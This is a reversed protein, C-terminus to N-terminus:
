QTGQCLAECRELACRFQELASSYSPRLPPPPPMPPPLPLPSPQPPSLPLFQSHEPLILPYEAPPSFAQQQQQQQQPASVAQQQQQQQSMHRGLAILNSLLSHNPAPASAPDM